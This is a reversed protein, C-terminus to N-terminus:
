GLAASQNTLNLEFVIIEAAKTPKILVKCWLENRDIRVPTNTTEDCVVKFETIGRRRRIDDLLPEVVATIREWTVSDNPEFVFQRTSALLIKRIIIMLRRVNVRDLATPKRQTTRQGFITIGQQPFNVIPNVVNGGSYMADRDGQGVRVEVDTPKTLRGRNFGAPAFWSESVSDTYGMQRIAFISPDYWRDVGDFQSFTKVWPWYIAAYSNNIAATRYPSQGNAWEIADQVRGVAYPPAVVALFNQSSEALTILENQVRQDTIGPVAAMAINLLDDDLAYIGSKPETTADGIIADAIGDEDVADPIGSDGGTLQSTVAMLKVFRPTAAGDLSLVNAATSPGWASVSGISDLMDPFKTTFHSLPTVDIDVLTDWVPGTGSVVFGKIYESKSEVETAAIETEIFGANEVFSTKYNEIAAGDNYVNIITSKSGLPDVDVFLGTVDGSEAIGYNYGAGPYLSEVKFGTNLLNSGKGSVDAVWAGAADGRTDVYKLASISTQAATDCCSVSLVAGSGAYSAVLFPHVADSSQYVSLKNGDFEGGVYKILRSSLDLSPEAPVTYTKRSSFAAQGNHDLIQVKLDFSVDTATGSLVSVSPAAGLPLVASAELATSDAARVIYMSNTTDLIELAGELAQGIIQESPKGFIRVLQEQNTILTAKNVPGRDAFGVLGVVSPNISVPYDSLDKEIVYVGPSVFTPM